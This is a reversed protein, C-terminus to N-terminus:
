ANQCLRWASYSFYCIRHGIKDTRRWIVKGFGISFRHVKIGCKRAAWFHGYEHVAVLVAIAIIFSGLSWLFSM